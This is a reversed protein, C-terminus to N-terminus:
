TVLLKKSKGDFKQSAKPAPIHQIFHYFHLFIFLLSVMEKASQNVHCHYIEQLRMFIQDGVSSM